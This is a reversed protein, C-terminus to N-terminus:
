TPLRVHLTNRTSQNNNITLNQYKECVDPVYNLINNYINTNTSYSSNTHNNKPVDMLLHRINISVPQGVRIQENSIDILFMDIPISASREIRSSKDNMNQKYSQEDMNITASSQACTSTQYSEIRHDQGSTTRVISPISRVRLPDTHISTRNSAHETRSVPHRRGHLRYQHYVSQDISHTTQTHKDHIVNMMKARKKGKCTSSMSGM